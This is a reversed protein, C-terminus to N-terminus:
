LAFDTSSLLHTGILLIQFDAARDGNSDGAIITNAGAAYARLDGAHRLPGSGVFNFFNDAETLIDADIASLDIKDAGALYDKIIDRAGGVASDATDVLVFRDDGDGGYLVDRGRGGTLVDAGAGGRIIDNGSGGLIANDFENGSLSSDSSAASTLAEIEQGARLRYDGGARVTDNGGGAGEIVLDRWDDVYFIDDGGGGVLRDVGTGGDLLNDAHSGIIVDDSQGGIVNEITFLKDNGITSGHAKGGILDVRINTTASSYKVTDIGSGGLYTDNGAGDGGIILDDGEGADVTDRGDGGYLEDDGAGGLLRDNGADGALNDDGIGGDLYDAGDGGSAMDNGGFGFIADADGTGGLDDPDDTGYLTVGPIAVKYGVDDFQLFNFATLTDTGDAGSVIVINAQQVITYQDRNGSFVATDFGTGADIVDDGGGGRVTDNGGYTTITDALAGGTITDEGIFNDDSTAIVLHGDTEQSGDIVTGRRGGDGGPMVTLTAGAAVTVDAISISLQDPNYIITEVNTVLSLDVNILSHFEFQDNGTGGDIVALPGNLYIYDDGDGGQITGSGYGEVDMIVDNGAGGDLTFAGGWVELTDDGEGGSLDNSGHGGDLRDNGDGGALTDDGEGGELRDNGTGGDLTDNGDLGSLVDDGGLGFLTDDGETGVLTDDEVPPM